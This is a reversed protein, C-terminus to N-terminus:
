SNTAKKILSRLTSESYEVGDLVIFPKSEERQWLIDGCKDVELLCCTIIPRSYVEVVDLERVNEHNLTLDDKYEDLRSWTEQRVLCGGKETGIFVAYINGNRVKVRMGTKLDSKKM